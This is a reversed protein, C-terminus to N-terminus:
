GLYNIVLFDNATGGITEMSRIYITKGSAIPCNLQADVGPGLILVLVGAGAPDGDYIGIAKGTTDFCHVAKLAAGLAGGGVALGAGASGLITNGVILQPPAVKTFATNVINLSADSALAVPFSDATLKQGATYPAAGQDKLILGPVARNNAPTGASYEALTATGNYQFSNSANYFAAGDTLRVAIPTTAVTTLKDTNTKITALNGGTELALASTNLNTGANATVTGSIAGTNCATIKANIAALTVETALGSSSASFAATVIAGPTVSIRRVETITFTQGVDATVTIRIRPSMLGVASSITLVKSGATTFNGAATIANWTVGDDWTQHATVVSTGGSIASVLLIITLFSVDNATPCVEFVLPATDSYVGIKVNRMPILNYM